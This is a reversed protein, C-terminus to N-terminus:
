SGEVCIGRKKLVYRLVEMLISDEQIDPTARVVFFATILDEDTARAVSNEMCRVWERVPYQEKDKEFSLFGLDHMEACEGVSM